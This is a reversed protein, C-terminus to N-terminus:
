ATTLQSHTTFESECLSKSHRGRANVCNEQTKRANKGEFLPERRLLYPPPTTFVSRRLLESNWLIELVATNKPQGPHCPKTGSNLYQFNVSLLPLEGCSCTSMPSASSASSGMPSQAQLTVACRLDNYSGSSVFARAVM